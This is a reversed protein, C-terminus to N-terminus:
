PKAEFHATMFTGSFSVYWYGNVQPPLSSTLVFMNTFNVGNVSVNNTNFSNIFSGLNNSQWCFNGVGDFSFPATIVSTVPACIGGPLTATPTKTVTPTPALPEVGWIVQNSPYHYLSIKNWDTYTTFSPNFSYDGTQTYLSSDSKTLRYQIDISQGPAIQTVGIVFLNGLIYDAGPRASTLKIFDGVINTCGGPITASLCTWTQTQNTGDWTYWYRVALDEVPVSVSGTNVIRIKPQITTTSANADGPMYQVKLSLGSIPTQTPVMTLTKTRTPTRSPTLSPGNTATRTRTSTAYTGATNTATPWAPTFTKTPTSTPAGGACPGDIEFHGFQTGNYTITYVGNLPAITNSVVYANKYETGNISLGFLNWSNIHDCLSSTVYCFKGSVGDNNGGDKTFPGTIPTAPSCVSQASAGGIGIVTVMMVVLITTLSLSRWYKKM